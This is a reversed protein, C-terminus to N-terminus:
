SNILYALVGDMGLYYNNNKVNASTHLIDFFHQTIQRFDFLFVLSIEIM